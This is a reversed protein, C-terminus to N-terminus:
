RTQPPTDGAAKKSRGGETKAPEANDTQGDLAIVRQKVLKEVAVNGKVLADDVPASSAGAALRVNQGNHLRVYLHRSSLNKMTVGM